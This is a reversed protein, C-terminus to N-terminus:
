YMNRLKAKTECPKSIMRDITNLHFGLRPQFCVQGNRFPDNRGISKYDVADHRGRGHRQFFRLPSTSVNNM